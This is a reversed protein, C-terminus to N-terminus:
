QSVNFIPELGLSVIVSELVEITANPILVSSYSIGSREISIAKCYIPGYSFSTITFNHSADPPSGPVGNALPLILPLSNPVISHAVVENYGVIVKVFPDDDM